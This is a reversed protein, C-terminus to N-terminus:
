GIRAPVMLPPLSSSVAARLSAAFTPGAGSHAVVFAVIAVAGQRTVGAVEAEAVGPVGRLVREIEAPEVRQGNINLMRDARGMVVFVGHDDCRALDGTRYIRLSPEDPDSVLRGERVCGDIWEGLANYRSRIVLEGRDGRRCPRGGSDLIAASTDPM